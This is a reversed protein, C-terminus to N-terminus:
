KIIDHHNRVYMLMCQGSTCMHGWDRMGGEQREGWGIGSSPGLACSILSSEVSLGGSCAVGAQVRVLVVLIGICGRGGWHKADDLKRVKALRMTTKFQM